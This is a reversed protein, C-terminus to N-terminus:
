YEVPFLFELLKICKDLNETNLVIGIFAEEDGYSYYENFKESAALNIGVPIPETMSDPDTYDPYEIVYTLSEEQSVREVEDVFANDIYFLYDKYQELMEESLHNRLDSYVTKYAYKNFNYEDMTMIDLDGAALYVMITQNAQLGLQDMQEGMRFTHEFQLSYEEVDVDIYSAFEEAFEDPSDLTQSSANLLVGYMAIEKSNIMDVAFWCLLLVVALCGLVHWKYYYVFYNIKERFSKEKIAEREEKFEDMVAM